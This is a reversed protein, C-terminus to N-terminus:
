NEWDFKKGILEFLENNHNKFFGRLKQRIEEDMPSYEGKEMHKKNRIQIEPIDLFEFIKKYINEENQKFEETSLILINEKPFIDFWPRLQM